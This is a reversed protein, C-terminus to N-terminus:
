GRNGAMPTPSGAACSRARKKSYSCRRKCRTRQILTNEALWGNTPFAYGTKANFLDALVWALRVVRTQEGLMAFIGHRWLKLLKNRQALTDWTLV